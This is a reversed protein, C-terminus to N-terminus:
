QAIMIKWLDATSTITRPFNCALGVIALPEGSCEINRIFSRPPGFFYDVISKPTPHSFLFTPTLTIAVRKELWTHFHLLELSDLITMLPRSKLNELDFSCSLNMSSLKKCIENCLIESNSSDILVKKSSQYEILIACGNNGFDSPRYAQIIKKIQAGGSIHFFLTPDKQSMVYEEYDLNHQNYVSCRTMAVVGHISQNENAINLVHNRLFAAANSGVSQVAIALLQIFSGNLCHHNEQIEFNGNILEPISNILQTYLVGCIQGDLLVVYQGEPYRLIRNKIKDPSARLHDEWCVEELLILTELDRLTTTRVLM